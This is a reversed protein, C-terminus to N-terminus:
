ESRLAIVPDVRMARRAPLYSALLAVAAFLVPGAIFTVPDTVSVHYLLTAMLRTLAFAAALGIAIGAGALLLGHGLVLRLIDRGDAGLAIRIGMEQTREAVSYAIVGYIGVMSLLFATASLGGLLYTTFRPQAAGTELLEDMSQVGTVPQDRDLALVRARVAATVSRPDGATRVILNQTASPIQAFPVYIEPQPDTGVALNPVDGLVGVIESPGPQRGLLIHKGVPNEKPWYRRVLAENVMVVRPAKADDHDTFEHGYRIPIRM